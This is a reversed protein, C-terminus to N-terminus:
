NKRKKKKFSNLKLKEKMTKRKFIGSLMKNVRFLYDSACDLNKLRKRKSKKKMYSVLCCMVQECQFTTESFIDFDLLQSNPYNSMITIVRIVNTVVTQREGPNSEKEQLKKPKRSVIKTNSPFFYYCTFDYPQATYIGVAIIANLDYGLFYLTM